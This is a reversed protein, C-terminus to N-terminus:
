KQSQKQQQRQLLRAVSGKLEADDKFANALKKALDTLVVRIDTAIELCTEDSLEHVDETLAAHLLMLPNQRNIQISDPLAHKVKGVADSFRTENKADELESILLSNVGLTKAVSLIRDFIRSKQNEIVRRYYTFAAIGLGLSEATQGKIFIAKDDRILTIVRSPIKTGFPPHEGFKYAECVLTDGVRKLRFSFTKWAEECNPCVYTLFDDESSSEKPLIPDYSESPRFIRDGDCNSCHMSLRPLEFEMTTEARRGVEIRAATRKFKVSRTNGPPCTLLFQALSIPEPMAQADPSNSTEALKPDDSM